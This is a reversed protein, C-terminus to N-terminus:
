RLRLHAVSGKSGFPSVLKVKKGGTLPVATITNGNYSDFWTVDFTKQATSLDLETEKQEPLYLLYEVGKNALCYKSTTLTSDPIMNILDMQASLKLTQGMAVRIPEWDKERRTVFIHDYYPDMFIPNLGRLFSKWVWERNGGIGWLHDTDTVIIKKGTAPPPNTEYMGDDSNTSIWDAPSNFLNQNTGGKFQFTMGVPHSKKRQRETEKIFSIMYYQWETSGGHNENSIEYLVHDFDGVAEIVKLVYAEQLKTVRNNALRYIDLRTDVATDLGLENVNNLPHFPHNLYGDVSMQLGWGEFLMVSVYMGKKGAAKVRQRLRKFYSENFRTLDFKPNGDLAMEKGSRKWPHLPIHHLPMYNTKGMSLLDWAWLRIFNHNYKKLFDLYAEYNFPSLAASDHMDVLNDWTHSGTLYIAKGSNDTFYRPNIKSVRLTNPPRQQWGILVTALFGFILGSSIYRKM